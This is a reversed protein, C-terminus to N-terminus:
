RQASAWARNRDRATCPRHGPAPHGRLVAGEGRPHQHGGGHVPRRRHQVAAHASGGVAVFAMLDAPYSSGPFAADSSLPDKGAVTLFAYGESSRKLSRVLAGVQDDRPAPNQQLLTARVSTANSLAQTLIVDSRQDVLFNRAVGYTVVALALGAVLATLSFFLTM